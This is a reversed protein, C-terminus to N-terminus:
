RGRYVRARLAQAALAEQGAPYAVAELTLGQPPASQVAPDRVGAELLEGLWDEPRRGTGVAALAGVILRVMRHCFADARVTVDVRGAAMREVRLELITRVTSAFPKKLCFPLFDHEGVLAQAARDMAAADLPRTWWTFGRELPDHTETEDAIRYRYQRWLAGFRADFAEGADHARWVRVDPPLIANLRGVLAELPALAEARGPLAALEPEELDFHTVQGRAHVGADTRGAVTLAVPRRVLKALAAALEGQVTRLNPQEAWGRFGSGDYALDLRVRVTM